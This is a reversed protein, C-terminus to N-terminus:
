VDLHQRLIDKTCRALVYDTNTNGEACIEDSEGTTFCLTKCVDASVIWLVWLGDELQRPYRETECNVYPPEGIRHPLLVSLKGESVVRTRRRREELPDLVRM